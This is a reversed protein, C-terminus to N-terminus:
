GIDPPRLAALAALEDRLEEALRAVARLRRTQEDPERDEDGAADRGAAASRQALQDRAGARLHDLVDEVGLRVRAPPDAPASAVVDQAEDPRRPQTPM